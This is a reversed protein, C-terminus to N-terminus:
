RETMFPDILNKVKIFEKVADSKKKLLRVLKFSTHQDVITLFYQFGSVSPPNIPGVLDLHICNLAERTPDFNGHFPLATIKSEVCTSCPASGTTSLGLSKLVAMGPHGLLHHWLNPPTKILNANPLQYPVNMLQGRLHGSLLTTGNDMLKFENDNKAITITTIILPLMAILDRRLRPVYLCDKLQCSTGGVLLTVDGKGLALLQSTADGTIISFPECQQFSTFLSKRGFMHHTAGCDLIAEDHFDETVEGTVYAQAYTFNANAKDANDKKKKQPQLHPFEIYCKKPKHSTVKPNHRGNSCFYVIQLPCDPDTKIVLATASTSSKEVLSRNNADLHHVYSQLRALIATPKEVAAEDM